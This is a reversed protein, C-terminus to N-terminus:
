RHLGARSTQRIGKSDQRFTACGTPVPATAPSQLVIVFEQAPDYESVQRVTDENGHEEVQERSFYAFPNGKGPIPELTTDVVIAGRGADDFGTTAATWFADLNEALWGLDAQRERLAWDPIDRYEPTM